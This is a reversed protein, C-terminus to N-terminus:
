NSWPMMAWTESFFAVQSVRIRRTQKRKGEINRSKAKMQKEKKREKLNGILCIDV